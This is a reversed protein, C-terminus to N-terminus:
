EGGREVCLGAANPDEARHRKGCRSCPAHAANVRPPTNPVNGCYLVKDPIRMGLIAYLRAALAYDERKLFAPNLDQVADFWQRVLDLEEINM